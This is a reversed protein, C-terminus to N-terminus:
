KLSKDYTALVSKARVCMASIENEAVSLELFKKNIVELMKYKQYVNKIAAHQKLLTKMEEFKKEFGVREKSVGNLAEDVENTFEKYLKNIEIQLEIQLQKIKADRAARLKKRDNELDMERKDVRDHVAKPDIDPSVEWDSPKMDLVTQFPVDAVGTNPMGFKQQVKAVAKSTADDYNGTPKVSAHKGLKKQLDKVNNGKEGPGMAKYAM